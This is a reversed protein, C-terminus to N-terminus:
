KTSKFNALLADVAQDSGKRGSVTILIFTTGKKRIYVREALEVGTMEMSIPTLLYKEGCFEVEKATGLKPKVNQMTSIQTEFAAMYDKETMNAIPEEQVCINVNAEGNKALAMMEYTASEKSLKQMEESKDDYMIKAGDGFAKEMQEKTALGYKDTASFQLGIFENKYETASLSGPKYTDSGAVAATTEPSATAVETATTTPATTNGAAAQTAKTSTEETKSNCGGLLLCSCTSVMATMAFICKKLKMRKMM